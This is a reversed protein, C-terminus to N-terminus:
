AAPRELGAQFKRSVPAPDPDRQLLGPRTRLKAQSSVAADDFLRASTRGPKIQILSRIEQVGGHKGDACPAGARRQASMRRNASSIQGLRSGAAPEVRNLPRSANMSSLGSLFPARGPLEYSVPRRASNITNATMAAKMQGTTATPTTPPYPKGSRSTGASGPAARGEPPMLHGHFGLSRRAPCQKATLENGFWDRYDAVATEGFGADHAAGAAVHTGFDGNSKPGPNSQRRLGDDAFGGAGSAAFADARARARAMVSPAACRSAADHRIFGGNVNRARHYGHQRVTPVFYQARERGQGVNLDM